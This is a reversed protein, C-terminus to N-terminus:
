RSNPVSLRTVTIRMQWSSDVPCTFSALTRSDKALLFRCAFLHTRLTVQQGNRDQANDGVAATPLAALATIAGAGAFFKRRTIPNM